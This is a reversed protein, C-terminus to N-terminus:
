PNSVKFEIHARDPWLEDSALDVVTTQSTGWAVTFSGAQHDDIANDEDKAFLTADFDVVVSFDSHWALHLKLDVHIEDGDDAPFLMTEFPHLPGLSVTNSFVPHAWDDHGIAVRDVIDMHGDVTAPKLVEDFDLLNRFTGWGFTAAYLFSVGSSETNFRMDRIQAARPLGFSIAFWSDGQNESKWITETSSAYVSPSPDARDTVVASMPSTPAPTVPTVDKWTSVSRRFVQSAAVVFQLTPTVLAFRTIPATAKPISIDTSSWGPANLRFIKGNNTGVFIASGDLSAAATAMYPLENGAPDKDPMHPIAGLQTWAFGGPGKDFLGYVAEAEAAVGVMLEGAGNTRSPTDVVEIVNENGPEPAPNILGDATGDIPIVGRSLPDTPFLKLDKFTRKADDWSAARPRNGFEVQTGSADPAKTTNNHHIFHGTGLFMSLVGDGGDYRTWPDPNAYLDTFDDGNDQLSVAIVGSNAPSAGLRFVQFNTFQRNALSSFTTVSDTAWALGGDSGIYLKYMGPTFPDFVLAHTDEHLHKSDKPDIVRWLAGGVESIAVGGVGVAVVEPDFPSVGICLCYGLYCKGLFDKPGGFLKDTMTGSILDGTVEWKLGGDGSALVRYILDEKRDVYQFNGFSDKV